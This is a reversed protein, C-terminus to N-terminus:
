FHQDIVFVVFCFRVSGSLVTVIRLLKQQAMSTSAKELDLHERGLYSM